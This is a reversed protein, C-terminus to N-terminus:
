SEGHLALLFSLDYFVRARGEFEFLIRLPTGFYFVYDDIKVQFLFVPPPTSVLHFDNYIGLPLNYRVLTYPLELDHFVKEVPVRERGYNRFLDYNYLHAVTKETFDGFNIYKYVNLLFAYVHHLMRDAFPDYLGKKAFFMPISIIPRIDQAKKGPRPIVEMNVVQQENYFSFSGFKVSVDVDPVITFDIGFKFKKCSPYIQNSNKQKKRIGSSFAYRNLLGPRNSPYYILESGTDFYRTLRNFNTKNFIDRVVNLRYYNIVSAIDHSFVLDCDYYVILSSSVSYNNEFSFDGLLEGYLNFQPIAHFKGICVELHKVGDIHLSFVLGNSSNSLKCPVGDLKPSLIYRQGKSAYFVDRESAPLPHFNMKEASPKMQQLTTNFFPLDINIKEQVKTIILVNTLSDYEKPFKELSVHLTEPTGDFICVDFLFPHDLLIEYYDDTIFPLLLPSRNRTVISYDFGYRRQKEKHLGFTTDRLQTDKLCPFMMTGGPKLLDHFDIDGFVNYSFSFHFLILDYKDEPQFSFNSKTSIIKVFAYYQQPIYKKLFVNRELDGVLLINVNIKNMLLQPVVANMYYVSVYKLRVNVNDTEAVGYEIKRGRENIDYLSLNSFLSDYVLESHPLCPTISLDTREGEPPLMITDKKKTAAGGRVINSGIVEPTFDYGTCEDITQIISNYDDPDFSIDGSPFFTKKGEGLKRAVPEFTEDCDDFGFKFDFEFSEM